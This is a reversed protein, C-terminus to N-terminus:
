NAKDGSKESKTNGSKIKIKQEYIEVNQRIKKILEKDKKSNFIDKLKQLENSNIGHTMKIYRYKLDNESLHAMEKKQYINWTLSGVFLIFLVIFSRVVRKSILKKKQNHRSVREKEQEKLISSTNKLGSRIQNEAEHISVSIRNLKQDLVSLNRSTQLFANELATKQTALDGKTAVDELKLHQDSIQKNIAKLLNNVEEFLVAVVNTDKKM